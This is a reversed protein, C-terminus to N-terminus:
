PLDCCTPYYEPLGTNITRAGFLPKDFTRSTVSPEGDLWLTADKRPFYGQRATGFEVAPLVHEEGKWPRDQRFKIQTAFAQMIIRLLLFLALIHDVFRGVQERPIWRM